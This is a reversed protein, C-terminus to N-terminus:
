EGYEEIKYEAVDRLPHDPFQKILKRWQALAMDKQDLKIYTNGLMILADPMKPAVPSDLFTRFVNEAKNYKGMQYLCEGSLYYANGAWRSNPYNQKFDEFKNFAESYKEEFYLDVISRYKNKISEPSKSTGSEPTEQEKTKKTEIQETESHAIEIDIDPYDYTFNFASITVDHLEEHVIRGIKCNPFLESFRIINYRQTTYGNINFTNEKGTFGTIWSLPNQNLAKGVESIIYHINNKKYTLTDILSVDKELSRLKSKVRKLNELLVRNEKMESNLKLSRKNAQTIDQELQMNKTTGLFAIAFIMLMVLYGHWKLKFHKQSEIIKEPLLNLYYFNEKNTQLGTWAITLPIVYKAIDEETINENNELIYSNEESLSLRNVTTEEGFKQQFFKIDDESVYEGGVYINKAVPITSSDKELLIKSFVSELINQSSTDPIIIPFNRIYEDGKFILGMKYEKGIYLITSYSKDKLPLNENAFNLLAIENPIISYYRFKKNTVAFNIEKLASLLEFNGKHLYSKIKENEIIHDLSYQIEKREEKPLLEKELKKNINNSAFEEPFTKILLNEENVNFSITFKNNDFKLLLEKLDNKGSLVSEDEVEEVGGTEELEPIEPINLEEELESIEESLEREGPEEEEGEKMQELYLPYNMEAEKLELIEIGDKSKKLHAVRIILDEQFIGFLNKTKM